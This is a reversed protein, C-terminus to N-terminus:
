SQTAHVREMDCM